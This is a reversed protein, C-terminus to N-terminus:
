RSKNPKKAPKPTITEVGFEKKVNAVLADVLANSNKSKAATEKVKKEEETLVCNDFTPYKNIPICCNVVAWFLSNKECSKREWKGSLCVDFKVFHM